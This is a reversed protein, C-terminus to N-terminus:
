LQYLLYDPYYESDTASDSDLIVSTLKRLPRELQLFGESVSSLQRCATRLESLRQTLM